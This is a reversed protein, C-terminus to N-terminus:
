LITAFKAMNELANKHETDSAAACCSAAIQVIFDRDHADRAASQVALDTAVGAIILTEIHHDRLITELDTGFFPSMRKKELVIEGSVPAVEPIFETSPTHSLLIQATKAGGLLPSNSPLDCYDEGFGLRCHIVMGGRSRLDQQLASLSRLTGHHLAFDRYGKTALKGGDGLIEHIFDICLLATTM